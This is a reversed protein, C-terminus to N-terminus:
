EYIASKAMLMLEMDVWEHLPKSPDILFNTQDLFNMGLLVDYDMTSRDDLNFAVGEVLQGNCVVNFIVVPRNSSGDATKVVQYSDIMARYKIGRFEFLVLEHDQDFSDPIITISQADLSCYSAGTDVKAEISDNDALGSIQLEVVPGIIRNAIEQRVKDLRPDNGTVAETLVDGLISVKGDVDAVVWAHRQDNEYLCCKDLDMSKQYQHGDPLTVQDPFSSVYCGKYLENSNDERIPTLIMPNIEVDDLVRDTLVTTVFGNNNISEITLSKEGQGLWSNTPPVDFVLRGADIAGRVTIGISGSEVVLRYKTQSPADGDIRYELLTNSQTRLSIPM